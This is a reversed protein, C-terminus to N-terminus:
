MIIALPLPRKAMSPAVLLPSGLVAQDVPLQNLHAIALRDILAAILAL